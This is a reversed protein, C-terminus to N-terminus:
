AASHAGTGHHAPLEALEFLINATSRPDLFAIRSNGHGPIPTENLFKVGKAKLEVLAADIDDVELCIHYLSQGHQAVWKAPDSSASVGELIELCTEGVPYMAMRTGYQPFSEVYDLTLGLQDELIVRVEDLSKVAMAVHEVRKYKM